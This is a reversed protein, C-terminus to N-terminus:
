ANNIEQNDFYRKSGSCCLKGRQLEEESVEVANSRHFHCTSIPCKYVFKDNIAFIGIMQVPTHPKGGIGPTDSRWYDSIVLPKTGQLKKDAM